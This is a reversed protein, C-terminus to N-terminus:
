RRVPGRWWVEIVLGSTSLRLVLASVIVKPLFSAWSRRM